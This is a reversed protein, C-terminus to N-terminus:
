ALEILGAKVATQLFARADRAARRRTIGGHEALSACLQAFSHRGDCLDWLLKGTDNTRYAQGAAGDLGWEGSRVEALALQRRRWRAGDDHLARWHRSGVALGTLGGLSAWFFTRRSLV